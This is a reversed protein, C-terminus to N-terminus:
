DGPGPRVRFQQAAVIDFSVCPAARALIEVYRRRRAAFIPGRLDALPLLEAVSATSIAVRQGGNIGGLGGIRALVSTDLLATNSVAGWRGTQRPIERNRLGFLDTELFKDPRGARRVARVLDYWRTPSNSARSLRAVAKRYREIVIEENGDGVRRLLESFERYARTASVRRATPVGGLRRMAEHRSNRFKLFKLLPWVVTMDVHRLSGM